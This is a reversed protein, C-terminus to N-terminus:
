ISYLKNYLQLESKGTQLNTKISNIQYKRGNIILCDNLKYTLLFNVPLYATVKVLRRQRNFLDSIYKRYYVFFLSDEKVIGTFEDIENGFNLTNNLYSNAARNYATLQAPTSGVGRDQVSYGNTSQTVRRYFILPSIAVPGQDKDVTWGYLLNQQSGDAQDTLPEFIMKEFPVKVVYKQGRDTQQVDPETTTNELNGFQYGNIEKFNISLFTKPEQYRFAIEQYPIPYNVSKKETDIFATIDTEGGANYFDDLEQVLIKGDEQFFATLNFMKFLGTLLDLVKINPMQLPISIDNVLANPSLNQSETNSTRNAFFRYKYRIALGMYSASFTADNTRIRLRLFQTVVSGSGVARVDHQITQNSGSLGTRSAVVTNTITDIIELDFTETSDVRWTLTFYDNVVGSEYFSRCFIKGTNSIFCAVPQPNTSNGFFRELPPTWGGQYGGNQFFGTISNIDIIFQESGNYSQGLKGRERSLWLYLLNFEQNNLAFFGKTMDFEVGTIENIRDIIRRLRIAPKLDRFNIGQNTTGDYYLNRSGAVASNSDYTLRETHSILPYIINGSFLSSNLGQTVTNVDYTHNYDEFGDFINRLNLDKLRKKIDVTEGFFTVKYSFPNNDKMEVGNLALFGRRFLDGNLLIQSPLKDNPNFNDASSINTDYYFKFVKNNFKSAPLTFSQTFDTFISGIDRANKITQTLSITEDKFLELRDWSNNQRILIQVERM